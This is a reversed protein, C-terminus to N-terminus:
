RPNTRAILSPLILATLSPYRSAVLGIRELVLNARELIGRSFRDQRGRSAFYCDTHLRRTARIQRSARSSPYACCPRFPLCMTMVARPEVRAVVRDCAVFLPVRRSRGTRAAPPIQRRVEGPLGVDLRPACADVRQAQHDRQVELRGDRRTWRVGALTPRQQPPATVVVDLRDAVVLRHPRGRARVVRQGSRHRLGQRHRRGVRAQRGPRDIRSLCHGSVGQRPGFVAARGDQRQRDRPGNRYEAQRLAPRPQVLRRLDGPWRRRLDQRAARGELRPRDRRRPARHFDRRAQTRVTARRRAAVRRPAQRLRSQVSKVDTSALSNTLVRVRVGRKVLASLAETGADGPVFYPSILDLSKVPQGFAEQLKPVLLLEKSDVTSLTKAPDDNVLHATTWEPRVTDALVGKVLGNNEIAEAYKASEPDEAIARARRALAERPEPTADAIIMRAPYASPSNWFLDFETSVQRVADGVTVVDLDVLGMAGIEFYEDAINRGGVVSVAGDVTFSKNHMRHNLRTFDGLYGLGRSGRNVFPNYLRLELNPHSALLALTPDTGVTNLDDLLLRVHVGREAARMVEEFMLTGTSDPHWIFTQIDISRTASRVLSARVGFAVRGDAIPVVGTLGPHEQAQPLVVRGIPSDGSPPLAHTAPRDQLSPLGACGTLLAAILLGASVCIVRSSRDLWRRPLVLAERGPARTKEAMLYQM